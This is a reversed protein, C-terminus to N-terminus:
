RPRRRRVTGRLHKGYPNHDCPVHRELWQCTSLVNALSEGGKLMRVHEKLLVPVLVAWHEVVMRDVKKDTVRFLLKLDAVSLARGLHRALHAVEPKSVLYGVPWTTEPFIPSAYFREAGQGAFPRIKKTKDKGQKFRRGNEEHHDELGETRAQEMFGLLQHNV